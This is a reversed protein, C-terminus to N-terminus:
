LTLIFTETAWDYLISQSRLSQPVGLQETWPSRWAFISSHTAMEKELPDEWGLSWLQTNRCQLCIRKWWTLDEFNFNLMVIDYSNLSLSAFVFVFFGVYDRGGLKAAMMLSSIWKQIQTMTVHNFDYSVCMKKIRAM